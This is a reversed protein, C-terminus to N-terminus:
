PPAQTVISASNHNSRLRTPMTPNAEEWVGWIIWANISRDAIWKAKADASTAAHNVINRRQALVMRVDGTRGAMDDWLGTQGSGQVVIVKRGPAMLDRLGDIRHPNGPRM